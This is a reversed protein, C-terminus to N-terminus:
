RTVIPSLHILIAAEQNWDIGDFVFIIVIAIVVAEMPSDLLGEIAIVGSLGTIEEAPKKPPRQIRSGGIIFLTVILSQEM